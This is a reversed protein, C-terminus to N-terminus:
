SGIQRVIVHTGASRVIQVRSGPPIRGEESLAPVEGDGVRLIGPPPVATEAVAEAGVLQSLDEAQDIAEDPEAGLSAKAAAQVFDVVDRGALDITAATAWDMPVGARKALMLADIVNLVRGGALYHSEMDGLEVNVGGHVARIKGRVIVRPDVKRLNMGILELMTVGAGSFYAQVWLKFFRGIVLLLVVLILGLAIAVLWIHDFAAFM